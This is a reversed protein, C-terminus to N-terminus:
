TSGYGNGMPQIEAGIHIPKVVLRYHKRKCERCEEIILDGTDAMTKSVERRNELNECCAEM